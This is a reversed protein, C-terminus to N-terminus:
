NHKIEQMGFLKRIFDCKSCLVAVFIDLVFKGVIIIPLQIFHPMGWELMKNTIKWWPFLNLELLHICLIFISYEGIYAFFDGITSTKNQILKAIKIIVYCGCLCGLIDMIGRGFDCHVMWFSKFNKIFDLWVVLALLNIARRVESM